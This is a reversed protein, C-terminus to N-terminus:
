KCGDIEKILSLMKEELECNNIKFNKKRCYETLDSIIRARIEQSSVKNKLKERLLCITEVVAGINEPLNQEIINKVLASINPAKGNTSFGIVLSDKKILAPFLFSCNQVDDVSNIPINLSKCIQAIQQNLICDNTASIVFFSNKIDEIEFKKNKLILNSHRAAMDKIEPCIKKAVLVIKAEYELLKVVKRYVVKGGGLVLVKKDKLDVFMPFYTM